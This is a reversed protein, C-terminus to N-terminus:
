SRTARAWVGRANSTRGSASRCRRARVLRATWPWSTVGIVIVIILLSQGFIGALIVALALLPLVLVLGHVADAGHGM